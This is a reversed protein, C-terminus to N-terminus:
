LEFPSIPTLWTDDVDDNKDKDDEVSDSNEDDDNETNSSNNDEDEAEEEEGEEGEGEEEEEEEGEEEEGEGEEEEEEEGEGEGEGEEGEGEEGEEEGENEYSGEPLIKLPLAHVSTILPYMKETFTHTFTHLQTDTDPDSFSLRGEDFDLNVRVLRLKKQVPIVAAPNLPSMILYKCDAYALTWSGSRMNTCGKRQFSEAAVGVIWRLCDGVEVVWIHSGSDLGESGMVLPNGDFREPNDPLKQAEGHRVSTLDESLVLKPHASNPDLIVPTYSFREKMKNWINHTLNGLHKAEDILAGSVQQPDELLTRQQVRKVAAKYNKLFSVDAARLENETVRITDSLAAIERNLAEIKEKMRQSKQKEEERLASIRVEEEEQLFQHLKKFQEKIRWETNRAQVKIHDATQDFKMKVQLSLKLKNQLTKMSRQIDERLDQAAEDIPRFKHDNHEKSDRCVVCFPEQHDLCFLKLKESHLSCLVESRRSANQGKELLFAECLNRLALNSPPPKRGSERKCLPCERTQKGAWWKKLCDDCFSHSCPLIVPKRYIDYCFACSLNKELRSSM